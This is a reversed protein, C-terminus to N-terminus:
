GIRKYVFGVEGLYKRIDNKAEDSIQISSVGKIIIAGNSFHAKPRTIVGELKHENQCAPCKMKREGGKRWRTVAKSFAFAIPKRSEPCLVHYGGQHNAYLLIKEPFDVQIRVFDGELIGMEGQKFDESIWSKDKWTKLLLYIDREMKPNELDPFVICLDVLSRPFPM